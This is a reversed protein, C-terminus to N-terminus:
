VFEVYQIPVFMFDRTPDAFLVVDEAEPFVDSVLDQWAPHLGELSTWEPILYNEPLKFERNAIGVRAMCGGETISLTPADKHVTIM